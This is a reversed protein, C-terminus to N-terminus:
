LYVKFNMIRIFGTLNKVEHGSYYRGIFLKFCCLHGNVAEIKVVCYTPGYMIGVVAMFFVGLGIRIRLYDFPNLGNVLRPVRDDNMSRTAHKGMFAIKRFNFTVNAFNGSAPKESM